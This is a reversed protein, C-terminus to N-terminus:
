KVAIGFVVPAARGHLPRRERDRVVRWLAPNRSRLEGFARNREVDDALIVGDTRLRPWVLEFERRMNRYTHLSDHVFLDVTDVEELLRPLVRRSSGRHLRWREKPSGDVTIGWFREYEPRLPPLDVSHLVGRGNEELARLIFASSVGYAVGTEVVVSPELLRCMLYCCRALLSDAAWRLSFPDGGRIDKLLRRTHEEVESLAPEDLVDAAHGFREEMDRLASKWSMTEYTPSTGFLLDLGLDAYGTTRDYFEGPRRLVLSALSRWSRLVEVRSVFAGQSAGISLV